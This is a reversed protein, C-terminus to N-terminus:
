PAIARIYDRTERPLGRRGAGWAAARDPGANYAALALDVDGDFNRLQEILYHSGILENYIPDNYYAHEDWPVGALRAAEPGTTPMVQMIGIAGASSEIPVGDRFQRGGSEQGKVRDLLDLLETSETDYLTQLADAYPSDGEPIEREENGTNQAILEEESLADPSNDSVPPSPMGEEPVGEGTLAGITIAVDRLARRGGEGTRSLLGIARSIQTPNQSLLMDVVGNAAAEPMQTHQRIASVIRGLGATKTVMLTNPSLMLLSQMMRVPDASQDDGTQEKAIKSFRRASQTTTEALNALDGAETHGLNRAIARRATPNNAIDDLARLSSGPDTLIDRELRAAQGLARGSTGEPTDYANRAARSARTSAPDVNERLRTRGGETVGEMM